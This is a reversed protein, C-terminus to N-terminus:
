SLSLSLSLASWSETGDTASQVGAHRLVIMRGGLGKLSYNFTVGCCARQQGIMQWDTPLRTFLERVCECPFVGVRGCVCPLVFANEGM